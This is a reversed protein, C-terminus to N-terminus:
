LARAKENYPFHAVSLLKEFQELTAVNEWVVPETNEYVLLGVTDDWVRGNASRVPFTAEITVQRPAPAGSSYISRLFTRADDLIALRILESTGADRAKIKLYVNGASETFEVVRSDFVHSAVAGASQLESLREPDHNCGTVALLVAAACITTRVAPIAPVSV